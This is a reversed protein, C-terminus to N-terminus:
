EAPAGSGPPAAELQLANVLIERDVAASDLEGHEEIYAEVVGLAERTRGGAQLTAALEHHGAYTRPRLAITRRYIQEARAYAAYDTYLISALALLNDYTLPQDEGYGEILGLAAKEVFEAGLDLRGARRFNESAAYLGDWGMPLREEAWRLLRAMEESRGGTQYIDALTLVCARYNQLLRNTNEDKHISEDRIGRFRYVEMLNRALAEANGSGAVKERKLKLTMGEMDLYPDLGVRNSRAVTIAFHVPRRFDNWYVIGIVMIDQVRLLEHGPAASVTVDLGLDEFMRHKRPTLWLRKRLDEMEIDTLTSDIMVDSLPLGGPRSMAVRPERDRLQKIYWGTNLLSLNIVTVDRRIGEM